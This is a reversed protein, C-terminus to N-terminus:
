IPLGLRVGTQPENLSRNHQRAYLDGEVVIKESSIRIELVFDGDFRRRAATILNTLNPLTDFSLLSSSTQCFM